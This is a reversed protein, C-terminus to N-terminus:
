CLTSVSIDYVGDKLSVRKQKWVKNMLTPMFPLGYLSKEYFIYYYYHINRAENTNKDENTNM